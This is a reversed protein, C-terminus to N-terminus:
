QREMVEEQHQRDASAREEFTDVRGLDVRTQAMQEEMTKIRGDGATHSGRDQEGWRM